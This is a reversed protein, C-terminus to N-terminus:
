GPTIRNARADFVGAPSAAFLVKMMSATPVINPSIM